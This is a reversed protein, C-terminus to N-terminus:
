LETLVIHGGEVVAVTHEFHASLSGDITLITLDDSAIEIGWEGTNIMPEIAIVMGPKLTVNDISKRPIGYNPVRPEEHVDHGVGHGVLDRVVSFGNAEAFEQITSGIDNLTNGPKVKKIALDLSKKTVSILRAAEKDIKGVALTVAMDTYYGNVNRQYPYEMGIDVGIIDGDKLKRGPLAPAHVIENNISTCLATPYPKEDLVSKYGKFSPRGGAKEILDCAMKELEATTAGPVTIESIKKLIEALIKGGERLIKIEERTKLTIM